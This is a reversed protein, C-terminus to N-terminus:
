NGEEIQPAPDTVGSSNMIAVSTEDAVELLPKPLFGLALLIVILPVVAAKERLDLDTRVTEAVQPTVPGTMTRQYMVLVYVASLVMGITIFATQVPYRQWGGAMTFFEGVFSGFGPLSLTALGAMLLVGALVPAVKQVGGFAAVDATGRRQVLYGVVLFLAASSLGHNLMYFISGSISQTTMAFIGFVMFGFHSVSTYSVFRMLDRSGMAMFAGYVVSVIAWVLIVPTAWASAEPFVLLCVKIMGFTGIKDLVGVLLTSTGPTAQEATDPLWTHLGVLPAKVAFAFFFGAFLWKGVTGSLDLTALDSFLFSVKGQDSGVAYLGAVAVLMVLGGALSYLLFKVAASTRRAGGWGAVMFYMPILTAEFAIYFLLVDSAMFVYLALGQMALAMAFFTGTSWRAEPRDGVNWEAIFVAPVLIVTLLVLIGSMGSFELAYWAGIPRIWPASEVLGTGRSLVFVLVGVVTTTLAFGLGVLKAVHGKTFLLVLAGVLPLLALITLLPISNFM